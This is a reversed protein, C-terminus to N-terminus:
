SFLDKQHPCNRGTCKGVWHLNHKHVERHLYVTFVAKKSRIKPDHKADSKFRSLADLIVKEPYTQAYYSVLSMAGNPQKKDIFEAHKVMEEIIFEKGESGLQQHINYIRPEKSTVRKAYLLQDEKGKKISLKLRGISLKAGELIDCLEKIKENRRTSIEYRKGDVGLELLLKKFGICWVTKNHNTTLYNNLKNYLIAADYSQKAIRLYEKQQFIKTYGVLTSKIIREDIQVIHRETFNDGGFLGEKKIRANYSLLSIEETSTIIEGEPAPSKYQWHIVSSKLIALERKLINYSTKGADIGLIKYIDRGSFTVYGNSKRGQEYWLQIISFFIESTKVTPTRFETTTKGDKYIVYAGPSVILIQVGKNTVRTRAERLKKSRPSCFIFDAHFSINLDQKLAEVTNPLLDLQPSDNLNAIQVPNLTNDKKRSEQTSKEIKQQIEGLRKKLSSSSQKKNNTDSM